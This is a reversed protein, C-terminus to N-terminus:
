YGRISVIARNDVVVFTLIMGYKIDHIGDIWEIEESGNEVSGYENFAHALGIVEIASVNGVKVCSEIWKVKAKECDCISLINVHSCVKCVKGPAKIDSVFVQGKGVYIQNVTRIM